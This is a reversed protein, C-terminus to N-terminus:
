RRSRALWLAGAGTMLLLAYTSPEPVSQVVQVANLYRRGSSSTPRILLTFNSATLSDFQVYNAGVTPANSITSTALTFTGAFTTTDQLFFQRSNFDGTRNADLSIGQVDNNTGDAYVIVSYGTAIYSAPISLFDLKQSFGMDGSLFGNMLQDNADNLGNTTNLGLSGAFSDVGSFKAVNFSQGDTDLFSSNFTSAGTLNNWSSQQTTPLGAYTSTLLAGKAPDSGVFNLGLSAAQINPLISALLSIAILPKM